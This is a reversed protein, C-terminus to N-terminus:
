ATFGGKAEVLERVGTQLGPDNALAKLNSEDVKKGALIGKLLNNIMTSHLEVIQNKQM